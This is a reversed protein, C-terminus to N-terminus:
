YPVSLSSSLLPPSIYMTGRFLFAYHFTCYDGLTDIKLFASRWSKGVHNSILCTYMGEDEKTVNNLLVRGGYKAEKKDVVFPQYYRPNIM